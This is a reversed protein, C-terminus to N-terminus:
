FAPYVVPTAKRLNIHLEYLVVSLFLLLIAARSLM